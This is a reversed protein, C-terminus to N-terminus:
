PLLLIVRVPSLTQFVSSNGSLAGSLIDSWAKLQDSSPHANLQQPESRQSSLLDGNYHVLASEM